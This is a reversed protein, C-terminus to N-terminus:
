CEMPQMPATGVRYGTVVPQDSASTEHPPRLRTVAQEETRRSGAAPRPVNPSSTRVASPALSAAGRKAKQRVLAVRSLKEVLQEVAATSAALRQEIRTDIRQEVAAIDSALADFRKDFASQLDEGMKATSISPRRYLPPTMGSGAPNCAERSPRRSPQRERMPISKRGALWKRAAEREATSAHRLTSLIFEKIGNILMWKRMASRSNPFDEAISRLTAGDVHLVHLYCLATARARAASAIFDHAGPLLVDLGGWCYGEQRPMGRHRASGKIIVYLRGNPPCENPAFVGTQLETAVRSIFAPEVHQVVQHGASNKLGRFFPVTVLYKHNVHECVMEQLGTTLQQVVQRRKEAQRTHRSEYFFQVGRASPLDSRARYPRPHHLLDLRRARVERLRISLEPPLRNFIIYRNLSDMRSKFERWDPNSHVLIEVLRATIYARGMASLMLWLM